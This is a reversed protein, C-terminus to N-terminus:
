GTIFIEDLPIMSQSVDGLSGSGVSNNSETITNTNTNTNTLSNLENEFAKIKQLVKADLKM